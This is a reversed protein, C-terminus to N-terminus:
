ARERGCNLKWSVGFRDTVIGYAASFFTEQIPMVVEGGEALQEFIRQTEELSSPHVLLYFGCPAEAQEMADAGSIAFEGIVMTAHAIRDGWDEPVQDKMPSDRYRLLVTQGGLAAEYLRFAAECQGNFIINPELRM